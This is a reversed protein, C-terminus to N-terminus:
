SPPRVTPAPTTAAMMSYSSLADKRRATNPPAGIIKPTLAHVPLVDADTELRDIMTDEICRRALDNRRGLASAGSNASRNRKRRPDFFVRHVARRVDVLFRTLLELHAGM